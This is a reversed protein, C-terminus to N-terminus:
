VFVFGFAFGSSKHDISFMDAPLGLSERTWEHTAAAEDPAAVQRIGAYPFVARRSKGTLRPAFGADFVMDAGDLGPACHTEDFVVQLPAVRLLTLRAIPDAALLVRSYLVAVDLPIARLQQMADVIDAGIFNASIGALLLNLSTMEDIPAVSYVGVEYRSGDLGRAYALAARSQASGQASDVVFGIRLRRGERPLLLVEQDTGPQSTLSLLRGRLAVLEDLEESAHGLLECGPVLQFADLASRVAASGRNAEALQVLERVFDLHVSFCTKAEGLYRFAPPVLLRCRTYTGWLSFPMAELKPVDPLLWAPVLVLAGLMGPWGKRSLESAEAMGFGDVPDILQGTAILENTLACAADVTEGEKQATPLGALAAAARTRLGSVTAVGEVKGKGDANWARAEALLGALVALAATKNQSLCAKGM